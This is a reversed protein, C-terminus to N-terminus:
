IPHLWEKGPGGWPLTTWNDMKSVRLDVKEVREGYGTRSTSRSPLVQLKLVQSGQLVRFSGVGFGSAVLLWLRLRHAECNEAFTEIAPRLCHHIRGAVPAM